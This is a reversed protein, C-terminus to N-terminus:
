AQKILSCSPVSCLWSALRLGVQDLCPLLHFILALIARLKSVPEYLDLYHDLELQPVLNELLDLSAARDILKPEAQLGIDAGHKRLLELGFAHFTGVGIGTAKEHLEARIRRALDQSAFNSFTLVLIAKPDEGNEVLWKIRGVLTRTKGTGPGAGVRYPVQGAKIAELQTEDPAPEAESVGVESPDDPLLLADALQQLVLDDPVGALTAIQAANFGGSTSLARLKDRPLLFERAFINAQAEAREKPSYADSEGVLSMEPEAPTELDLDSSVCRVQVEELWFHAYEHALHFAALRTETQNSYLILKLDRDLVAEAGDLLADEKPRAEYKVQTAEAAASLLDGAPVLSSAGACLAYHKERALQRVAAWISM